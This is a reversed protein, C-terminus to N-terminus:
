GVHRQLDDILRDLGEATCADRVFGAKGLVVGVDARETEGVARVLHVIAGNGPELNPLICVRGTMLRSLMSASGIQLFSLAHDTISSRKVCTRQPNGILIM